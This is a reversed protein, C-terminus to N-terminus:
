HEKVVGAQNWNLFKRKVIVAIIGSFHFHESFNGNDSIDNCEELDSDNIIESIINSFINQDCVM